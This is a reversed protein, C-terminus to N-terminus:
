SKDTASVNFIMKSKVKVKEGEVMSGEPKSGHGKAYTVTYCINPNDDYKGFALIVVEKFYITKTEWIKERGNVIIHYEKSKIKDEHTYGGDENNHMIEKKLDNILEILERMFRNSNISTFFASIDTLSSRTCVTCDVSM